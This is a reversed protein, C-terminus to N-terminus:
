LRIKWPLIQATQLLYPRLPLAPLALM